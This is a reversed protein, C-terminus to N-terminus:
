VNKKQVYTKASVSITAMAVTFLAAGVFSLKVSSFAALTGALIPGIAMGIGLVSEYSGIAAGAQTESFHLSVLNLTFPFIIAFCGGLLVISFFFVGFTPLLVLSIFAVGALLSSLFLAKREGFRAYREITVYVSVRSIGFVAFLVGVVVASIGLSNAYGPLITSVISFVIGYCAVMIYWPILQRMTNFQNSSHVRDPKRKKESRMCFVIAALFAFIMALSSIVFLDFFGLTQVITGGLLPGIMFALGFSASYLGFEKVRKGEPALDVVLVEALPYFFALGL